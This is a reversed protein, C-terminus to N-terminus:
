KRKMVSNHSSQADNDVKESNKKQVGGGGATEPKGV